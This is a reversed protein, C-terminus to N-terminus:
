LRSSLCRHRRRSRFRWNFLTNARTWVEDRKNWRTWSTLHQRIQRSTSELPSYWLEPSAFSPRQRTNVDELFVHCKATGRRLRAAVALFHVFFLSPRAPKNNQWDLGKTKTKAARTATVTAFFRLLIELVVQLYLWRRWMWWASWAIGNISSKPKEPVIALTWPIVESSWLYCFWNRTRKQWERRIIVNLLTKFADKVWISRGRM